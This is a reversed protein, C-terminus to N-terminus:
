GSFGDLKLEAAFVLHDAPLEKLRIPIIPASKPRREHRYSQNRAAISVDLAITGRTSLALIEPAKKPKSLVELWEIRALCDNRPRASLGCCILHAGSTRPEDNASCL